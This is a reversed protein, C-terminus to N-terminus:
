SSSSRRRGPKRAREGFWVALWVTERGPMTWEVRHRRHAPLLLHDGARLVVLAKRGELRLKAAGKLVLVWENRPSDYWFGPNSKQGKSVIREIAIGKGGVIRTVVEEPIRKPIAAFINEKKM